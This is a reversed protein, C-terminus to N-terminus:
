KGYKCYVNAPNEKPENTEIADRGYKKFLFILYIIDKLTKLNQYKKSICILRKHLEYEPEVEKPKEEAKDKELNQYERQRVKNTELIM